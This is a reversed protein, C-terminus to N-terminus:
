RSVEPLLRENRRASLLFPALSLTSLLAAFGFHLAYGVRQAVIGSVLAASGSAIVVVSAMLTYDTGEHGPRCQDMMTTFLAATAMGAFIHEAGIVCGLLTLDPTTSALYAYAGVALSQAIGFSVLARTRGLRQVAAGGLLAGVLGAGFGITGLLTGIEKLSLGLDVLYPRLMANALAEGVKYTALVLVFRQMRADRFRALIGTGPREVPPERPPERFLLVPITALSLGAALMLMVWSMGWTGLLALLAGGGVIMGVRYAAVQVGNGIGRESEALLTVALGDTAIDQTAAFFNVLLILLLIPISIPGKALGAIALLTLVSAAQMALIWGRRHGLTPSGVRDLVPAWLFKLGWPAALASALGVLTLSAGQARMQVPIAQTFFGFPLGQAAYLSALLWLKARSTLVPM